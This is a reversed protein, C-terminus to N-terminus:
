IALTLWGFVGARSASKTLRLKVQDLWGGFEDDYTLEEPTPLWFLV